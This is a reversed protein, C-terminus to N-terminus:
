HPQTVQRVLWGAILRGGSGSYHFGDPRLEQGDIFQQCHGKPCVYADVDLITSKTLLAADRLVRNLCGTQAVLSKPFYFAAPPAATTVWVRAGTSALTHLADTLENRYYRDWAVSCPSRWVGNIQLDQVAPFGLILVVHSPHVAALQERWRTPWDRCTAPNALTDDGPGNMGAPTRHYPTRPVECGPVGASFTTVGMSPQLQDLAPALYVAVSDGVILIRPVGPSAPPTGSRVLHRGSAITATITPQTVGGSTAILIAGVTCAAAAPALVRIRWGGLAGRRIPQEVLYYSAVALGTATTVRVTTLLWGNLGTRLPDLWVFVPWHWLYLGYSILGIWRLPAFSLAWAIPGHRPHAAAALVATGALGCLLLGGREVFADQGNLYLWSWSLWAIGALGLVELAFRRGVSGVPGWSALAAALAAGFLIAPARTDTGFYLRSNSAGSASLGLALAGLALAGALAASFVRHALPRARSGVVALGVIVLPWVLYFQEEIALSWTHNLPSPAGFIAFYDHGTFVSRWNAVYGLTALADGRIQSLQSASAVFAAYAAVSALVLFLAPLLRRARRAWFASLKVKQTSRWESLLLGTILFGSLVFFLDVGLYGGTLHGAHFLIVAIVAAGRVGDLAGVRNLRPYAEPATANPESPLFNSGITL